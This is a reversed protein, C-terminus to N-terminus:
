RKTSFCQSVYFVACTKVDRHPINHKTQCVILPRQVLKASRQKTIYRLHQGQYQLAWARTAPKVSRVQGRQSQATDEHIKIRAVLKFTAYGVSTELILWTTM